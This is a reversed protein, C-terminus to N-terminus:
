LPRGLLYKIINRFRTSTYMDSGDIMQPIPCPSGFSNRYKSSDRAYVCLYYVSGGPIDTGSRFAPSFAHAGFLADLAYPTFRWFDDFENPMIHVVQLFPVVCIVADTAMRCLNEVGKTVDFIHELVTHSFVVDFRGVLNEPLDKELDLSISGPLSSYMGTQEGGRYNSVAYESARPFYARYHSGFKDEDAWGSCNLIRGEFCPGIEKLVLNSWFRPKRYVPHLLLYKLRAILRPM